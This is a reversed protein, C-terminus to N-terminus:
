FDHSPFRRKSRVDLFPSEEICCCGGKHGFWKLPRGAGGRHACPSVMPSFVEFGTRRNLIFCELGLPPPCLTSRPRLGETKRSACTGRGYLHRASLGLERFFRLGKESAFLIRLASEGQGCRCGLGQPVPGEHRGGHDLATPVSRHTRGVVLVRVRGAMDSLCFSLQKTKM